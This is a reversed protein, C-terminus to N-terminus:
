GGSSLEATIGVVGRILAALPKAAARGAEIVEDHSLAEGTVGAAANSILSLGFIRMGCQRAVIVEPVTSMGVADAGVTRLFRIEAPTEYQPGLCAAYTGSELPIQKLNAFREVREGWEPDYVHTMDVFRDGFSSEHPGVLPSDGLFNLHDSIRMLTGPRFSEAIGGAANTVVLYRCGVAALVRVGFTARGLSVGEYRHVRGAAVLVARDALKGAIWSSGHGEVTPRPLHPISSMPIEEPDTLGLTGSTLGSGLVLGVTPERGGLQVRLAEAAEDVQAQTVDM